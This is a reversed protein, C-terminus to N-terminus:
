RHKKPSTGFVFVITMLVAMGCLLMVLNRRARRAAKEKPTLRRLTVVGEPTVITSAPEAFQMEPNTTAEVTPPLDTVVADLGTRAAEKMPSAQPEPVLFGKGCLPCRAACRQLVAAVSLAAQCHPCAVAFLPEAISDAFATAMM